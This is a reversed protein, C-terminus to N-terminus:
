ASPMKGPLKQQFAIFEDEGLLKKLQELSLAKKAKILSLFFKSLLLTKKYENLLAQLRKKTEKDKVESLMAIVPEINLEMFNRLIKEFAELFSLTAKYLKERNRKEVVAILGWKELITLSPSVSSLSYSSQEAIEAQSLPVDEFLLLGWVRGVPEGLGWQKGILAIQNVFRNKTEKVEDM